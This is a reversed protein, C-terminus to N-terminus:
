NKRRLLTAFIRLVYLFGLYLFKIISPSSKSISVDEDKKQVYPIEKIKFGKQYVNYIFELFFEGHGYGLFTVEDLIERRMLFISSTFDKITTRLILRCLLNFYKSCFARLFIRDDGGGDVFRSMLVLDNNSKLENIMDKFKSSLEGMNTDLWGIYSGNTETLGRVFASALSRSKKRFVVKYKNNQNLRKIIEVTGDSSNDDVIVIELDSINKELQFITNEIHNAENYTCLIISTKSPM